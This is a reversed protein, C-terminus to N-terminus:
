IRVFEPRSYRSELGIFYWSGSGDIEIRLHKWEGDILGEIVEGCHLGGYLSGDEFNIDYRELSEDYFLRGCKKRM